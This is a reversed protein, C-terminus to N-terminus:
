HVGAHVPLTFLFTAGRDTTDAVVLQGGQAEALSRSVALGLGVGNKKTTFFADFIKAAHEPSIGPGNDSVTIEVGDGTRRTRAVVLREHDVEGVADMANFLLNLIVQRLCVRDAMVKVDSADLELLLRVRRRRSEGGILNALDRLVEDVDLVELEFAQKRALMQLREIVAGAHRTQEGIDSLIDRLDTGAAEAEGSLLRLGAYANISVATIPQKVEHMISALLEGILALRTAHNLELRANRAENEATKRETVDRCAYLVTGGEISVSKIHILLNRRAGTKSVVEREVNRIEGETKLRPLDFLNEGLLGGIHGMAQVEDPVFGFIVDVNPCVFTFRGDDDTLFVADSVNTLVARHLAESERLAHLARSRGGNTPGGM